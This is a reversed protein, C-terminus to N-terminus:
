FSCRGPVASHCQPRGAPCSCRWLAEVGTAGACVTVVYQTLVPSPKFTCTADAPQQFMMSSVRYVKREVKAFKTRTVTKVTEGKDNKRYSTVTKIGKADPGVVSTPPLEDGIDDDLTDGWRMKTAAM